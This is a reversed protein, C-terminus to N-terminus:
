KIIKLDESLLNYLQIDEVHWQSTLALLFKTRKYLDNLLLNLVSISLLWFQVNDYYCPHPPTRAGCPVDQKLFTILKMM